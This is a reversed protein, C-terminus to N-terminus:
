WGGGASDVSPFHTIEPPGDERLRVAVVDLRWPRAEWRRRALYALACSELTRLKSPTVAEEPPGFAETRRTKVEVFVVEDGSLCVLDIEGHPLRAQREVVRLGKRELERAALAEGADGLARRADM